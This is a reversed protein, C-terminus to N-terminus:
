RKTEPRFRPLTIEDSVEEFSVRVPMEATIAYPDCGVINAAMRVGEELEVLAVVYPVDGRYIDAPVPHEVVIWSFVHGRGSAAIWEVERSRCKPCFPGPPFRHTGCQSCRQIMLRQARCGEWFPRTDHDPVPLPKAYTM